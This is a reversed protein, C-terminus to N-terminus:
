IDFNWTITSEISVPIDSDGRRNVLVDCETGLQAEQQRMYMDRVVSEPVCKDGRTKQRALIVDLPTMVQVCMIGFGRSKGNAVWQARSKRTLNTNDVFLVTSKLAENWKADVFMQFDKANAPDNVYDWADAYVKAESQEELNDHKLKYYEVRCDDLSFKSIPADTMGAIEMEMSKQITSKGSGSVGIM